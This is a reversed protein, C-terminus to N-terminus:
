ISLVLTSAQQRKIIPISDGSEHNEGGIEMWSVTINNGATAMFKSATKVIDGGFLSM